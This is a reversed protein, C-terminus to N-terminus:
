KEEALKIISQLREAAERCAPLDPNEEALRSIDEVMKKVGANDGSKKYGLLLNFAAYAQAERLAVEEPNKAALTKIDGYWGRAADPDSAALRTILNFAAKAQVERLAAEKPNDAALTQIDGYWGRAADPDSAALRTILNFAVRTWIIATVINGGDPAKALPKFVAHRPFNQAARDLFVAMALPAMRWALTRMSELREDLVNKPKLRDLVFWEGLIDPELAALREFADRGSMTRFREADYNKLLGPGEPLAKLDRLELGGCLTALALLDKDADTVGAPEWFRKEERVMVDGILGEKARWLQLRDGDPADAM